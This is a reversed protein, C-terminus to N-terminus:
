PALGDLMRERLLMPREREPLPRSVSPPAIAPPPDLPELSAEFSAHGELERGASDEFRWHLEIAARRWLGTARDLDITAHLVDVEADRRWPTPAEVVREGYRRDAPRLSVHIADDSAEVADLEAHPGALEVLDLVAHQADDAWLQWVESEVPRELWGREDLNSWVREDIVILQRGFGHENHQDLSLRPGQGPQSGWVLELEDTVAFREVIPDGVRPDPPTESPALGVPGTEIEARYRLRHPGILERTLAHDQALLGVLGDWDPAALVADVRAATERALDRAEIVASADAPETVGCGWALGSAVVTALAVQLKAQPPLRM